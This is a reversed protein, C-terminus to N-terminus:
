NSLEGLCMLAVELYGNIAKWAGDGLGADICAGIGQAGEGMTDGGSVGSEHVHRISFEIYLGVAELQLHSFDQRLLRANDM